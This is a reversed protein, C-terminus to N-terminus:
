YKECQRKVKCKEGSEGGLVVMLNEVVDRM